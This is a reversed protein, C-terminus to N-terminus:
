GQLKDLEPRLSFGIWNWRPAFATWYVKGQNVQRAGQCHVDEKTPLHLLWFNEITPTQTPQNASCSCESTQLMTLSLKALWRAKDGCNQADAEVPDPGTASRGVMCPAVLFRGTILDRDLTVLCGVGSLADIWELCSPMRRRYTIWVSWVSLVGQAVLNISPPCTLDLLCFRGLLGPWLAQRKHCSIVQESFTLTVQDPISVFNQCYQVVLSTMSNYCYVFLFISFCQPLFYLHINRFVGQM